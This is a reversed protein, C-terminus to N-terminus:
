EDNKIYKVAHGFSNSILNEYSPNNEITQSYNTRALIYGRSGLIAYTDIYYSDDISVVVKKGGMLSMDWEFSKVAYVAIKKEAFEQYYNCISECMTAYDFTDYFSDYQSYDPISVEDIFFTGNAYLVTDNAEEKGIYFLNNGHLEFTHCFLPIETDPFVMYYKNDYSYIKYSVKENVYIPSNSYYFFNNENIIDKTMKEITSVIALQYNTEAAHSYMSQYFIGSIFIGTIFIIFYTIIKKM